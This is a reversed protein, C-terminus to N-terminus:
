EYFMVLLQKGDGAERYALDIRGFDFRWSGRPEKPGVALRAKLDGSLHLGEVPAMVRTLEEPVVGRALSRVVAEVRAQKSRSEQLAADDKARIDHHIPLLDVLQRLHDYPQEHIECGAPAKDVPYIIGTHPRHSSLWMQSEDFDRLTYVYDALTTSGDPTRQVETAEMWLHYVHGGVAVYRDVTAVAELDIAKGLETFLAAGEDWIRNSAERYFTSTTKAALSEAVLPELFAAIHQLARKDEVPVHAEQLHADVDFRRDYTTHMGAVQDTTANLHHLYEERGRRRHAAFVYPACRL